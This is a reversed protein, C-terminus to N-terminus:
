GLSVDRGPVVIASKPRHHNRVADKANELVALVWQLEGIPGEVSLAGDEFVSIIIKAAPHGAPPGAM